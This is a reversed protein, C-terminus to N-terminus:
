TLESAHHCTEHVISAAVMKDDANEKKPDSILQISCHQTRNNEKRRSSNRENEKATRGGFNNHKKTTAFKWFQLKYYITMPSMNKM